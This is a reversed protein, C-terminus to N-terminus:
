HNAEPANQQMCIMIGLKFYLYSYLKCLICFKLCDQQTVFNNYTGGWGSYQGAIQVCQSNANDFAWRTQATPASNGPAGAAAPVPNIGRGSQTGCIYELLFYIRTCPLDRYYHDCYRRRLYLFQSLSTFALARTSAVERTPSLGFFSWCRQCRPKRLTFNCKLSLTIVNRPRQCVVNYAMKQYIVVYIICIHYIKNHMYKSSTPCCLQRGPAGVTLCSHTNPCAVSPCM